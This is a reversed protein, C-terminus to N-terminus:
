AVLSNSATKLGFKEIIERSHPRISQNAFRQIKTNGKPFADHRRIATVSATFAVMLKNKDFKSFKKNTIATLTIHNKGRSVIINTNEGTSDSEFLIIPDSQNNNISM